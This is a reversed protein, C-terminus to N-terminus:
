GEVSTVVARVIRDSNERRAVYAYPHYFADMASAPEVEVHFGAGNGIDRVSLEVRGSESHWVLLVEDTGTVRHALERVPARTPESTSPLRGEDRGISPILNQVVM